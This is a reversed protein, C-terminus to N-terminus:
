GDFDTLLAGVSRAVRFGALAPVRELHDALRKDLTVFADATSALVAHWLDYGDGRGPLRFQVQESDGVVQSYIQSMAVGVFLRVPPIMLLGDLGRKRCAEGYGRATAFDDAFREAGTKWFMEFTLARREESGRSEWGLETLTEAQAEKMGTRFSDKLDNVDATIKALAADMRSSGAALDVLCKVVARRDAEPLATAPTPQGESYAQISERLLDTPQKLMGHFGALSRMIRLKRVMAPRDTKLEGVLEDIDALSVRMLIDKRAMAARLGEVETPPVQGDPGRDIESYVCTDFYVTKMTAEVGLM